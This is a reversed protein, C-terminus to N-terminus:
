LNIVLIRLLMLNDLTNVNPKLIQASLRAKTAFLKQPTAGVDM